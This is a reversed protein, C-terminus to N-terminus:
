PILDQELDWLKDLAEWIESIRIWKRMAIGGLNKLQTQLQPSLNHIDPSTRILDHMTSLDHLLSDFAKSYKAQMGPFILDLQD